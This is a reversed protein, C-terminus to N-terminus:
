FRHNLGLGLEKAKAGDVYGVGTGYSGYAYLSTRKSLPYKYNLHYINQTKADEGWKDADDLNSASRGWSVALVGTGVPASLGVYYNSSKFDHGLSYSGIAPRTDATFLGSAVNAWGLKGYRDQGYALHLKVVEFDYSGAIAWNTTANELANSERDYSLSVDIPGSAYKLGASLRNSRETINAGGAPTDVSLISTNPNGYAVGAQFGSFSPTVYKFANDMRNSSGQGGFTRDMDGMSVGVNASGYTFGNGMNYQRGMTFSGWHDSALGVWSQRHFLAGSKSSNGGSGIDFGAELTFIARLGDGLDESGRVGWRNGSVVGSALGSSTSRVRIDNRDYKIQSYGYGTDLIGYLTVSTEAQAAGALGAFLAAALLTKKM